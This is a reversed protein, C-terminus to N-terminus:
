PLYSLTSVSILLVSLGLACGGVALLALSAWHFGPLLVSMSPHAPWFFVPVNRGPSYREALKSIFSRDRTNIWRSGKSSYGLTTGTHVVGGVNYSYAVSLREGQSTWVVRSTITGPTTPWHSSLIGLLAGRAGAAFVWSGLGGVFIGVSAVMALV